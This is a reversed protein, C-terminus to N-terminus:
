PQAVVDLRSSLGFRRNNRELRILTPPLVGTCLKNAISGACWSMQRHCCLAISEYLVGVFSPFLLGHM